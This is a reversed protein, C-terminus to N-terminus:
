VATVSEAVNGSYCTGSAINPATASSGYIYYYQGTQLNHCYIQAQYSGTDCQVKGLGYYGSNYGTHVWESWSMCGTTGTGPPYAVAAVQQAVNGTNCILTVVAPATVVQTGYKVYGVGTQENMCLLKVKYSGTDCQINGQGQFYDSGQTVWDTWSMCGTVGTGLPYAVAAVKEAVNGTDCIVSATGPATAVQTGYKAYEAGTQENLCLNKARYSGSTCTVNGQGQFYDSGQQVWQISTTCGTPAAQIQAPAAQTPIPAAEVQVPIVLGFLGLLIAAATTIVRRM